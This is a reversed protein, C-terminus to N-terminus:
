TGDLLSSYDIHRYGTTCPNGDAIWMHRDVLDMVASVVTAEQEGVDAGERPHTCVGAPHNAHLCFAEQLTEPSLSSGRPRLHELVSQLRFPSDPMLWLGVDQGAFRPSVYHNTHALFGDTPQEVLLRSFGGPLAEVDVALGDRHALMYNASSARPAAQLRALADSISTADHLARLVVHYPVAPEGLDMECAMANTAIGLGAANMGFKALLGAEVLTVFSPGDDQEVELVVVTERAHVLWDWNQGILTHGGAAAAPLVALSTCEGSCSGAHRAKASFMVETRVNISLIDELDVGAGKAIGRMEDVFRPDFTEIAPVYDVAMARVTEWDVAAWSRFVASYAQISRRVRESTQEGYQVGREYPAGRVRVHPYPDRTPM